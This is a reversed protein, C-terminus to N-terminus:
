LAPPGQLRNQRCYYGYLEQSCSEQATGRLQERLDFLIRQVVANSCYKFSTGGWRSRSKAEPFYDWFSRQQQPDLALRHLPHAPILGDACADGFFDEPVMFVGVIQRDEEGEEPGRRTLLCASNPKLKDPIRPEGKASGSLYVGTSLKWDRLPDPEGALELAFAAQSNVSIKFSHIRQQREQEELLAQLQEERRDARQRLLSGVQEAAQQNHFTLFKRFADPYLFRKEGQPFSVIIINDEQGTVIGKGFATHKVAQGTLQM